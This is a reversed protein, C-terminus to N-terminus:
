NDGTKANKGYKQELARLKTDIGKEAELRELTYDKLDVFKANELLSPHAGKAKTYMKQAIRRYDTHGAPTSRLETLHYLERLNLTNYWRIRYGFPVVYQAQLPMKKRIAKFTKEAKEMAQLYYREAEQWRGMNMLQEGTEILKRTSMNVLDQEGTPLGAQREMAHMILRAVEEDPLATLQPNQQRAQAIIPRLEPPISTM